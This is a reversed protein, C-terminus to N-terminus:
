KTSEAAGRRTEGNVSRRVIVSNPYGGVKLGVDIRM